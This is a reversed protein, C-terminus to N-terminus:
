GRRATLAKETKVFRYAERALEVWATIGPPGVLWEKMLRGRGPNFREARCPPAPWRM